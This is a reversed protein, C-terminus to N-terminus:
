NLPNDVDVLVDAGALRVPFVTAAHTAPLTPAGTRLDFRASHGWCEICGDEVDGESLPVDGHTCTDTLAHFDGEEDRVIAVQVTQGDASVLEVALAEARALQDAACAPQFSM